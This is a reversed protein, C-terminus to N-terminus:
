LKTIATLAAGVDLVRMFANKNNNEVLFNFREWGLLTGIHKVFNDKNEFSVDIQTIMRDVIDGKTKDFVWANNQPVLPSTVVEILGMLTVIFTKGGQVVVRPDLYNNNLDKLSAVDTFWDCNNVVATDPLYGNQEGLEFIQTAMGSLLDILNPAQIKATLVCVPNAASFDSSVSNISFTEEGVGTGLLVQQDSRLNISQELLKRIRSEMFKFDSVFKRCFDITDQIVKTTISNVVLTEKTTSIVEACKAVNQANRVVTNQETYELFEGPIPITNFLAKFIPRRVPKDTIGPKMTAFDIGADIDGYTQEAKLEISISRGSSLDKLETLNKDWEKKISSKFGESESDIGSEKLREIIEVMSKIQGKLIGFQEDKVDIMQKELEKLRAKSEETNKKLEKTMEGKLGKLEATKYLIYDEESLAKIQETTFKDNFEDNGDKLVMWIPLYALSPGFGVTSIGVFADISEPMFMTIGIIAAFAVFAFINFLKKM